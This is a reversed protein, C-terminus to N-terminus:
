LQPCLPYLVVPCHLPFLPTMNLEYVTVDDWLSHHWQEETMHCLWVWRVFPHPRLEPPGYGPEGPGSRGPEPGHGRDREEEPHGSLRDPRSLTAHKTEHQGRCFSDWVCFQLSCKHHTLLAKVNLIRLIRLIM